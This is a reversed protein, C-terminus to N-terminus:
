QKSERFAQKFSELAREVHFDSTIVHVEEPKQENIHQKMGAIEELTWRSNTVRLVDKEPVGNKRLWAASIEHMRPGEHPFGIPHDCTVIIKDIKKNEYLELAKELRAYAAQIFGKEPNQIKKKKIKTIENNAKMKAVRELALRKTVSNNNRIEQLKNSLATEVDAVEKRKKDAVITDAALVLGLKM